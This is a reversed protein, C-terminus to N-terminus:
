VPLQQTTVASSIVLPSAALFRGYLLPIPQGQTTLETSRDFLFSEKRENDSPTALQQQPTLLSAIGGLVMTAGLGFLINGATLATKGIYGLAFGGVGPIFSLAILAVGLLIRGFDGSGTVIPAIILRDCPMIINEYDMGESDDNILRFAVGKEHANVMYEKFGELQNCLASMIDRPSSAVFHFKRGFRRGLEGLLKVEINKM